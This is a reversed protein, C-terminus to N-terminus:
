QREIFKVSDDAILFYEGENDLQSAQYPVFYVVDGESPPKVDAGYTEKYKTGFADPAMKVVVGKNASRAFNEEHPIYLASDESLGLDKKVQSRDIQILIFGNIPEGKVIDEAKM